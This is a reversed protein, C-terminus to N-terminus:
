QCDSRPLIVVAVFEYIELWKLSCIDAHRIIATNTVEKDYMSFINLNNMNEESYCNYKYGVCFHQFRVEM